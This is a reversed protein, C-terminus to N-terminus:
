TDSIQPNWAEKATSFTWKFNQLHTSFTRFQVVLSITQPSRPRKGISM